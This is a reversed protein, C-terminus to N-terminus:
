QLITIILPLKIGVIGSVFNSIEDESMSELANSLTKIDRYKDFLPLAGLNIIKDIELAVSQFTHESNIAIDFVGYDVGELNGLNLRLTEEGYRLAIKYKDYFERLRNEITLFIVSAAPTQM